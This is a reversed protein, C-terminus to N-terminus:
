ASAAASLVLSTPAPSRTLEIDLAPEADLRDVDHDEQGGGPRVEGGLVDGRSRRSRAPSCPRRAHLEVQFKPQLMHFQFMENAVRQVRQLDIDPAVSLPYTEITM